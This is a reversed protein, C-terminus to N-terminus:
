PTVNTSAPTESHAIAIWGRKAEQWVTAMYYRQPSSSSKSQLDAVYSVVMDAGEPKVQLEAINISSLNLGQFYQVAQDRDKIGSPTTLTYIPALHWEATKFDGNQVSKWWQREYAEAGTAASWGQSQPPKGATCAVLPIMLSLTVLLKVHRMALMTNGIQFQM